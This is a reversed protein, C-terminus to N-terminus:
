LGTGSQSATTNLGKRERELKKTKRKPKRPKWPCNCYFKEKEKKTKREDKRKMTLQIKESLKMQKMWNNQSPEKDDEPEGDIKAFL